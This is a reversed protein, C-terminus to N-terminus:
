EDQEKRCECNECECSTCNSSDSCHCTHGCTKCPEM